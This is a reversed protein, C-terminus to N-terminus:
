VQAEEAGHGLCLDHDARGCAPHTGDRKNSPCATRQHVHPPHSLLQFFNYESTMSICDLSKLSYNLGSNFKNSVRHLVMFGM